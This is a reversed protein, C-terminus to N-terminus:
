IKSKSENKTKKYEEFWKTLDTRGNYKSTFEESKLLIELVEEESFLKGHSWKTSEQYGEVFGKEYVTYGYETSYYPNMVQKTYNLNQQNLDVNEFTEENM